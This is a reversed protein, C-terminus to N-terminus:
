NKSQLNLDQVARWISNLSKTLKHNEKNLYKNQETLYHIFTKLAKTYEDEADLPELNIIYHANNDGDYAMDIFNVLGPHNSTVIRPNDLRM